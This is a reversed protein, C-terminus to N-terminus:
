TYPLLGDSADPLQQIKTNYLHVIDMNYVQVFLIAPVVPRPHRVRQVIPSVQGAHDDLICRRNGM